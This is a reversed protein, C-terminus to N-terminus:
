CDITEVEADIEIADPADLERLDEDAADDTPMEGKIFMKYANNAIVRTSAIDVGGGILGGVVPVLKGMNIIGKEGFKTIFRFGVKQNIATLTKGPISKIAATTLKQGLQIGSTKLIDAAASGTMCAYVLTQVQDTRIDYGGMHAIAAIMRMQVYLVSGVNAPISVPLTIVGGLGSLFGSTGCKLIQNSILAKAARDVSDSRSLYDNALVEVSESVKPIGELSQGYISNLLEEVEVESLTEKATSIAQKASGATDKAVAAIKGGGAKAAKVAREGGSKAVEATKKGAKATMEGAISAATGMGVAIDKRLKHMREKSNKGDDIHNSAVLENNNEM